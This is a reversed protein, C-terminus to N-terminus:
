GAQPFERDRIGSRGTLEPRDQPDPQAPLAQPVMREMPVTPERQALLVLTELIVRQDPLVQRVQTAQTVRPGLLEQPDLIVPTERRAQPELLALLEMREMRDLQALRDRTEQPVPLGPLDRIVRTARPAPLEMM